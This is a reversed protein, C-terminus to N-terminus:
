ESLGLLDLYAVMLPDNLEGIHIKQTLGDGDIFISTPFGRVQYLEATAFDPDLLFTMNFGQATVFAQVEQATEGGNVALVVFEDAYKDQYEQILPMEARCPPCWTAWFNVMVPTGQYDSLSVSNGELDVLTFGPASADDETNENIVIAEPTVLLSEALPEADDVGENTNEAENEAAVEEMEAPQVAETEVTVKFVGSFRMVVLVGLVVVLLILAADLYWRRKTM